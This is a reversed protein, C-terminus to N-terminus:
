CLLQKFCYCIIGDHGRLRDVAWRFFKVYADYLKTNLTAKSDKAYTKNIREDVLQISVTRIIIMRM